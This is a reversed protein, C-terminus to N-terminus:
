NKENDKAGKDEDDSFADEFAEAVIEMVKNFNSHEDILDMVKDPTLDKDEHSLGAWIVIAADDMSMDNFDLKSMNKNLAKEIKSIARM